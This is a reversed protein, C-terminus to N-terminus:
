SNPEKEEPQVTEPDAEELLGMETLYAFQYKLPVTLQNMLFILRALGINKRIWDEDMFPHQEKVVVELVKTLARIMSPSIKKVPNGSMVGSLEDQFEFIVPLAAPPIFLEIDYKTGASDDITVVRRKEPMLQTLDLKDSM